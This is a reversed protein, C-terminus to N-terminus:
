KRTRKLQKTSLLHTEVESCFLLSKKRRLYFIMDLNHPLNQFFLRDPMSGVAYFDLSLWASWRVAVEGSIIVTRKLSALKKIEPGVGAAEGERAGHGGEYRRFPILGRPRTGVKAARFSWRQPRLPEFTPLGKRSRCGRHM